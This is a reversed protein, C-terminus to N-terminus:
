GGRYSFTGLLPPIAGDDNVEACSLPLHDAERGSGKVGFSLVGAGMIYSAPHAGSDIQCRYLFSFGKSRGPISAM